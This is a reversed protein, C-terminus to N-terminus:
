RNPQKELRYLATATRLSLTNGIIAPSAMCGSELTNVALQQFKRGKAIVTTKGDRDFFYIKGAAALPSTSFKGGIRQKWVLKGTKADM